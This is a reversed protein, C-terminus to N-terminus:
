STAPSTLCPSERTSAIATRTPRVFLLLQLVLNGIPVFFLLLLWLSLGADRLRPIALGLTGYLGGAVLWAQVIEKPLNAVIFLGFILLTIATCITWRIFYRKRTLRRPFLGDPNKGPMEVLVCSRPLTPPPKDLHREGHGWNSRRLYSVALWVGISAILLIIAFHAISTPFTTGLRLTVCHM